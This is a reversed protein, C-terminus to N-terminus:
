KGKIRTLSDSVSCDDKLLHTNADIPVSLSKADELYFHRVVFNIYTEQSIALTRRSRNRSIALGLLWSVPGLHTIEFTEGIQHELKDILSPSSGTMTMDDVHIFLIAIDNGMCIFFVVPDAASRQFGIDILVKCLTDYWKRRAQKLGYLSKRLKVIYRSCDAMEHHPPQEMFITEGENLVGNLYASHFNFMNIEWDNRAARAFIFQISVLRAVPAFTEFYDM